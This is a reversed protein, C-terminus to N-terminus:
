ACNIYYRSYMTIFRTCYTTIFKIYVYIYFAVYLMHGQWMHAHGSGPQQCKIKKTYLVGSRVYKEEYFYVVNWPPPPVKGPFFKHRLMYM